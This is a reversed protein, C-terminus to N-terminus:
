EDRKEKTTFPANRKSYKTTAALWREWDITIPSDESLPDIVVDGEKANHTAGDIGNIEHTTGFNSYAKGSWWIRVNSPSMSMAFSEECLGQWAGTDEDKRIVVRIPLYRLLETPTKLIALMEDQGIM